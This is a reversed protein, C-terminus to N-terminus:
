NRAVGTMYTCTGAGTLTHQSVVYRHITGNLAVRQAGAGTKTAFTALDVYTINDVSHRVKVDVATAGTLESVELYAAGGNASESGFDVPTSLTDGTANIQVHPHVTRGADREGSGTFSVNVRHVKQLAFVRTYKTQLAGAFGTFPAGVVNGGVAYCFVRKVGNSAGFAAVTALLADDYFGVIDLSTKAMGTDFSSQFTDGLPNRTDVIEEVGGDTITEILGKLSLGDCLIFGVQDSGYNM